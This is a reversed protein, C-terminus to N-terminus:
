ALRTVIDFIEQIEPNKELAAIATDLQKLRENITERERKLRETLSERRSMSPYSGIEALSKQNGDFM